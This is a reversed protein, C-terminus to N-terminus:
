LATRSLRLRSGGVHSAAWREPAQTVAAITKEDMKEWANVRSRQLLMKTGGLHGATWDVTAPPAPPAFFITPVVQSIVQPCVGPVPALSVRVKSGGLHSAAWQSPTLRVRTCGLHTGKYNAKPATSTPTLFLTVEEAPTRHLLVKTTGDLHGATWKQPVPTLTVKASGKYHHAKYAPTPLSTRSAKVAHHHKFHKSASSTKKGKPKPTPKGGQHIKTFATPISANPKVDVVSVFSAVSVVICTIM